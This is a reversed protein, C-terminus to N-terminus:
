RASKNLLKLGIERWQNIQGIATRIKALKNFNM